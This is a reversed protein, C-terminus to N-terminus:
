HLALKALEAKVIKGMANRPMRSVVFLEEPVKYRALEAECRARIAALDHPVGERLELYAVVREGLRPCPKAVVAAAIVTPDDHLVREVEAPYVNAGGRVIMEKKRGLVFLQGTEDLKGLDGTYYRGERLVERTAEPKDDYGLMPTYVGALPGTCAAKVCIEGVEDVGLLRDDEDRIELAVHPLAHGCLGPLFRADPRTRTVTAPAETMGYGVCVEHGFREIYLARIAPPIHAGGMEPQVLSSLDDLATEPHTLLDHYIAPVATLHGIREERVRRALAQPKASELVVCPAGNQLTVLPVLVMLNLTTLPLMVGHPMDEPYFGLERAMAGMLVLNHQSHVAGKPFGTTGSTYAIAAPAHPDIAARRNTLGAERLLRQGSCTADRADCVLVESLNGLTMSRVEAAHEKSVLYLKSASDELLHQKEPPALRPSVGVWVAGLRATALFATVIEARNPLCAAVRCGERVGRAYLVNAMRRVAEDLASFSYRHTDDVLALRSPDRACWPDLVEAVHKIPGPIV